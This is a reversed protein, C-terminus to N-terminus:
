DPVIPKVQGLIWVLENRYGSPFSMEVQFGATKLLNEMQGPSRYVPRIGRIWCLAQELWYAFPFRRKPPKAMRILISAGDSLRTKLRRFTLSLDDDQLYHTMDLLLALDGCALSEPVQPASAARIEGKDGLRFVLDGASETLRTLQSRLNQILVDNPMSFM